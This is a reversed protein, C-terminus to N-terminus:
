RNSYIIVPSDPFGIYVRNKNELLKNYLASAEKLSSFSGAISYYKDDADKAVFADFGEAKLNEVQARCNTPMKYTGVAVNYSGPLSEDKVEPRLRKNFVYIQTGEFERLQPGDIQQVSGMVLTSDVDAKVTQRKGIAADYAAQYNQETPKCAILTLAVLAASVM